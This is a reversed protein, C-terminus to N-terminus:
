RMEPVVFNKAVDIPTRVERVEETRWQSEGSCFALLRYVTSQKL